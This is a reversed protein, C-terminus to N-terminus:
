RGNASARASLARVSQTRSNGLGITTRGREEEDETEEQTEGGDGEGEEQIAGGRGTWHPLANDAFQKRGAQACATQM